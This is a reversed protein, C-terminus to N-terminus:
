SPLQPSRHHHHLHSPPEKLHYTLNHDTKMRYALTSLKIAPGLIKCTPWDIEPNFKELWLFGLIIRDGSLHSIFFRQTVKKNGKAVQLDLFQTIKGSKNSTRDINRLTVPTKMSMTGLKLWEVMTDDIFIEM